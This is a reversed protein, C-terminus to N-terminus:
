TPTAGFIAARRALRQTRATSFTANFVVGPRIPSPGTARTVRVVGEPSVNLVDPGRFAGTSLAVRPSFLFLRSLFARLRNLFRYAFTAMRSM